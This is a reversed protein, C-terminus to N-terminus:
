RPAARHEGILHTKAFGEGHQQRRSGQESGQRQSQQNHGWHSQM